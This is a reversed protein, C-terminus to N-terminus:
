VNGRPKERRVWENDQKPESDCELAITTVPSDPADMPLGTVRVRFRDQEFNVKKGTAFMRASTVKAQLGTVAVADGPWHHVHM